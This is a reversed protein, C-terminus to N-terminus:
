DEIWSVKREALLVERSVVTAAAAAMAATVAPTDAPGAKAAVPLRAAVPPAVAPRALVMM